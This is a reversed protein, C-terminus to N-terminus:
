NGCTCSKPIITKIGNIGFSHSLFTNPIITDTALLILFAPQSTFWVVYKCTMITIMFTLDKTRDVSASNM